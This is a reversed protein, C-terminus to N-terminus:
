VGSVAIACAVGFFAQHMAPASSAGVLTRTTLLENVPREDLARTAEGRMEVTGAGCCAHVCLIVSDWTGFWVRFSSSAEYPTRLGGIAMFPSDLFVPHGRKINKLQGRWSM